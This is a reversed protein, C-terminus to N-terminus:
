QDLLHFRFVAMVLCMYAYLCVLVCIDPYAFDTFSHENEVAVGVGARSCMGSGGRLAACEEIDAIAKQIAEESLNPNVVCFGKTQLNGMMEWGAVDTNTTPFVQIHM